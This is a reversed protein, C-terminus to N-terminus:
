DKHQAENIIGFDKNIDDIYTDKKKKNLISYSSFIECEEKTIEEIAKKNKM